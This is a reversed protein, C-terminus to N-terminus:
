APRRAALALVFFYVPLVRWYTLLDASLMQVTQGTWFCFIWAGTFARLSDSSRAARYSCCLIAINLAIVAFLGAIGTEALLTLYTNDGVTRAGIFDSYPLTKYGVGLLAHWPHAILYNSLTEWADIRGSLVANPSESFYEFAAAVRLWAIQAFVPFAAWLIAASGLVSFVVGPLLKRWRTRDRRLWVLAALAVAVNVLSARSFSLVLATALPAAGIFLATRSFLRSQWLRGGPAFLAVAIMELFFACLNGLTSAEYFFGQARRYVGSSLWVFQQEYGSPPAFQFYFDVCAYLAALVGAWFLWRLGRLSAEDTLRGPGDRVYLFVYVSIGFLLVRALSSAAVAIGSYAVAMAISAVFVTWLAILALAPADPHFRWQALRLCGVCLGAAAVAIAIHPGSDGLPIPLPPTLLACAFFLALWATPSRLVRWLVAIAVLPAFLWGQAMPSPALAISAACTGLALGAFTERRNLRRAVRIM